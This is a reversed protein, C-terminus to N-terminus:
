PRFRGRNDLDYRTATDLGTEHGTRRAIERAVACWFRHAAVHRLTRIRHARAVGYPDDYRAMLTDATSHVRKRRDQRRRWWRWV